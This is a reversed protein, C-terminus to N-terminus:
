YLNIKRERQSQMYSGSLTLFFDIVHSCDETDEFYKRYHEKKNGVDKKSKFVPTKEDSGEEKEVFKVNCPTLIMCCIDLGFEFSEEFLEDLKKTTEIYKKPIKDAIDKFQESLNDIKEQSEDDVLAQQLDKMKDMAESQVSDIDVNSNQITEDIKDILSKQTEMKEEFEYIKSKINMGLSTNFKSFDKEGTIPNELSIILDRTEKINSLESNNM